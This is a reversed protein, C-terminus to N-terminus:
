PRGPDLSLLWRSKMEWFGAAFNTETGGTSPSGSDSILLSHNSRPYVKVVSHRNGATAMAQRFAAISKEVPLYTDHEGWIALVPIKLKELAPVPDYSMSTEYVHRLREFSASLNTYPLWREGASQQAISQLRDWGEGTRAVEFKLRVFDAGREVVSEPFGDIRLQTEARYLDAEWPPVGVLSQLILFSVDKSRSAALSVTWASNSFGFLGIRGPHIDDRTKLLQVFALVDNALDSFSSSSVPGTSEGGGRADFILAGIGRSAYHHAWLRLQHRNTGYDGPTVIVVPHRSKGSPLILTGGLAITGNRVTVREEKWAIRRAKVIAKGDPKWTLGRVNGEEDREFSVRVAVPHSVSLGVGSYFETQSSPWLTGVQGTKYDVYNLTRPHGWGRLISIVRDPSVRYAGYYPEIEDVPVFGWRTLGFTGKEKGLVFNGSITADKHRGDFVARENRVPIEFHLGDRTAELRDVAVNLVNEGGGYSPFLIDATSGSGVGPATVRLNVAVWNGDIRFGGTWHGALQQRPTEPAASSEVPLALLAAIFIRAIKM